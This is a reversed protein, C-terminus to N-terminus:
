FNLKTLTYSSLLYNKNVVTCYYTTWTEHLVFWKKRQIVLRILAVSSKESALIDKILSLTRDKVEERKEKKKWSGMKKNLVDYYYNLGINTMVMRFVSKIM